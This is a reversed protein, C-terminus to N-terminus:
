WNIFQPRKNSLFHTVENFTLTMEVVAGYGTTVHRRFAPVAFGSYVNIALCRRPLCYGTSILVCAIISSSGNRHLRSTYVGRYCHFFQKSVIKETPAGHLSYLSLLQPLRKLRCDLIISFISPLQLLSRSQSNRFQSNASLPSNRCNLQSNLTRCHLCTSYYM